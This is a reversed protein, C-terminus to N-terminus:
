MRESENDNAIKSGIKSNFEDIGSWNRCRCHELLREVTEVMLLLAGDVTVHHGGNQPHHPLGVVGLRELFEDVLHICVTPGSRMGDKLSEPTRMGPM